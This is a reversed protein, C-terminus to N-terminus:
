GAKRILTVVLKEIFLSLLIIVATWCFIDTTELYVKADHLMTGISNKPLAFIEGTIGSKWGFGISTSLSSLLFPKLAPYYCLKVTKGFSFRYVKAVELLKRDTSGIGEHVGSYVIPFVMLFSIFISLDYSKIWVLALIIFSIVPAARIVVLIPSLLQHIGKFFSGVTGLFIGCFAGLLYGTLVRRLSNFISIWFREELVLEGLRKVVAAPSSILLVNYDLILCLVQWVTLWFLAVLATKILKKNLTTSNM